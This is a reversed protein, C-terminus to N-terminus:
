IPLINRCCSLRQKHLTEASAITASVHKGDPKLAIQALLGEIEQLAVEAFGPTPIVLNRATLVVSGDL